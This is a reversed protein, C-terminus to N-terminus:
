MGRVAARQVAPHLQGGPAAPGPCVCERGRLVPIGIYLM